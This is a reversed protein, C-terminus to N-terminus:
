FNLWSVNVVSAGFDFNNEHSLKVLFITDFETIKIRGLYNVLSVLRKKDNKKKGGVVLRADTAGPLKVVLFFFMLTSVQKWQAFWEHRGTWVISRVGRNFSKPPNVAIEDTQVFRSITSFIGIIGFDNFEDKLVGSLKGKSEVKKDSSEDSDDGIDGIGLQRDPNEGKKQDKLAFTENWGYINTIGCFM